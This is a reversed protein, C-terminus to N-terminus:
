CEIKNNNSQLRTLEAEHKDIKEFETKIKTVDDIISQVDDAPRNYIIIESLSYILSKYMEDFIKVIPDISEIDLSLKLKTVINEAKNIYELRDELNNETIAKKALELNSILQAYMAIGKRLNSDNTAASQYRNISNQLYPNKINTSM